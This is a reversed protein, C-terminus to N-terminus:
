ISIQYIDPHQMILAMSDDHTIPGKLRVLLKMNLIGNERTIDSQEVYGRHSKVLMQILKQASTYSVLSITGHIRVNIQLIVLM